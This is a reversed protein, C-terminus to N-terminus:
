RGDLWRLVTWVAQNVVLMKGGSLALLTGGDVESLAGVTGAAVAHLVGDQDRLVVFRGIREGEQLCDNGVLRVDYDSM